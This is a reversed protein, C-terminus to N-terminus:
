HSPRVAQRMPMAAIDCAKCTIPMRHYSEKVGGPPLYSVDPPDIFPVKNLDFYGAFFDYSFTINNCDTFKMWGRVADLEFSAAPPQIDHSTTYMGIGQAVYRGDKMKVLQSSFSTWAAYGFAANDYVGEGRMAFRDETIPTITLMYKYDGGGYWTGVPSCYDPDKAFSCLNVFVFCCVLLVKITRM